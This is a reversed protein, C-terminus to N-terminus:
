EMKQGNIIRKAENIYRHTQSWEYGIEMMTQSVSKGELYRKTIVDRHQWKKLCQMASRLENRMESLEAMAQRYSAEADTMEVVAKEQAKGDGGGRPMDSLHVSTDTAREKLRQWANWKRKTENDKRMIADFDIM